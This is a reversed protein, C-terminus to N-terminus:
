SSRFTLYTALNEGCKQLPQNQGAPSSCDIFKISGTFLHDFFGLSLAVVATFMLIIGSWRLVYGPRPWDVKKLEDITTQLFGPKKVKKDTEVTTPQDDKLGTTGPKIDVAVNESIQADVLSDKKNRTIAM